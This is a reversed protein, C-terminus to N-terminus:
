VRRDRGGGQYRATAQMGPLYCHYTGSDKSRCFSGALGKHKSRVRNNFKPKRYRTKRNRRARRFERRTSLNGVIDNRPTVEAAFVEQGDAAVASLGIHKSGADVGLTVDQRYGSSGYLLQITFPARKMLKAKGDKLLHRAKAPSCPMLPHGHQNLVYPM